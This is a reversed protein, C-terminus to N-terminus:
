TRRDKMILKVNNPFQKSIDSLNLKLTDFIIKADHRQSPACTDKLLIYARGEDNIEWDAPANAVNLIGAIAGQTLASVAACVIDTGEDSYDAHGSAEFGALGEDSSYFRITTM